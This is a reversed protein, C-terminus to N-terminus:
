SFFRLNRLLRFISLDLVVQSFLCNFTLFDRLHRKRLIAVFVAVVVELLLFLCVFLLIEYFVDDTIYFLLLVVQEQLRVSPLGLTEIRWNRISVVAQDHLLAVQFLLSLHEVIHSQHLQVLEADEGVEVGFCQALGLCHNIQVAFLDLHTPTAFVPVFNLNNQILDVLELGALAYDLFPYLVDAKELM